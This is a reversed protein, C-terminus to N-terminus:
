VERRAYILMPLELVVPPQHMWLLPEGCSCSQGDVVSWWTGGDDAPEHEGTLPIDDILIGCKGCPAYGTKM